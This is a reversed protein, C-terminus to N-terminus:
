GPFRLGWLTAGGDDSHRRAYTVRYRDNRRLCEWALGSVDLSDFHNYARDDRWDKPM